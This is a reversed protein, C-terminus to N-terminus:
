IQLHAPLIQAYYETLKGWSRQSFLTEEEGMCTNWKEVTEGMKKTKGRMRM